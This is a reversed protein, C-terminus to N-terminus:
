RRQRTLHAQITKKDRPDIEFGDNEIERLVGPVEDAKCVIDELYASLRGTEVCVRIYNIRSDGSELAVELGIFPPIPIAVERVVHFSEGCIPNVYRRLTVNYKRKM